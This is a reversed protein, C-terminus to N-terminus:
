GGNIGSRVSIGVAISRESSSPVGKIECILGNVIVRDTEVIQNQSVVSARVKVIFDRVSHTQGAVIPEKLRESLKQNLVSAWAYCLHQWSTSVNGSSDRSVIERQFEVRTDFEQASSNERTSM